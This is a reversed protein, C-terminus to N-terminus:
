NNCWDHKKGGNYKVAYGASVLDDGLNIGDYTEVIGLWRGYKERSQTKIIVYKGHKTFWQKVFETAKKGLEKEQPCKARFTSEPTDVGDLRVSGIYYIGQNSLQIQMIYSDGDIVRILKAPNIIGYSSILLSLLLIKM